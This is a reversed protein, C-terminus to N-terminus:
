HCSHAVIADIVIHPPIADIVILGCARTMEVLPTLGRPSIEILNLHTLGTLSIEGSRGSEHAVTSIVPPAPCRKAREYPAFRRFLTNNRTAGIADIVTLIKTKVRENKKVAEWKKMM